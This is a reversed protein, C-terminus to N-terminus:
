SYCCMSCQHLQRKKVRVRKSMDQDASRGEGRVGESGGGDVGENDEEASDEEESDTEEEEPESDSDRGNEVRKRTPSRSSTRNDTILLARVGNDLTIARYLLTPFLHEIGNKLM